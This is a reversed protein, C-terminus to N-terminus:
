SGPKVFSSYKLLPIPSLMRQSFFFMMTAQQLSSLIKPPVTMTELKPDHITTISNRHMSSVRAPIMTIIIRKRTKRVMMMLHALVSKALSHPVQICNHHPHIPTLSPAPNPNSHLTLAPAPAHTPIWAPAHPTGLHSHSWSHSPTQSHSPSQLRSPPQRQPSQGHSTAVPILVPTPPIRSARAALEM